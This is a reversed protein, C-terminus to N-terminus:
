HGAVFLRKISKPEAIGLAHLGQAHGSAINNVKMSDLNDLSMLTPGPAFEMLMAQLWGMAYPLSIVPRQKGVWHGALQM